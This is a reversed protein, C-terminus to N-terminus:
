PLLALPSVTAGQDILGSSNVIIFGVGGGGGGAGRDSFLSLGISGDLNGLIGGAGGNGGNGTGTGGAAAPTDTAPGNDGNGAVAIDCGGGGGGGNAALVASVALTVTPAELGLYGGSGGGGGAARAGATGDAGEGGAGGAHLLGAVLIDNQAALYVAGGGGGGDGPDGPVGGSGGSGGACGGRINTPTGVKVGKAGAAGGGGNGGIAGAGGDGGLAGGGGGGGGKSDATGTGGTSGGCTASDAGAGLETRSSSVDLTGLIDIDDWSAVVLPMAGIVRLTTDAPIELRGVVIVRVSPSVTTLVETAPNAVGPGSLTGDDTNYTYSSAPMLVLPGSPEVILCPDFHLPNYGWGSCVPPADTPADQAPAADVPRAEADASTRADSGIAGDNFTVGSTDFTCAVVVPSAALTCLTIFLSRYILTV